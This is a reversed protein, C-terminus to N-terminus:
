QPESTEEREAINYIIFISIFGIIIYQFIGNVGDSDYLM